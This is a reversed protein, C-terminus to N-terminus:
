SGKRATMLSPREFCDVFTVDVFGADELWAKMENFSYCDGRETNVLMNVAFLTRDVPGAHDDDIIFEHIIILGDPEM